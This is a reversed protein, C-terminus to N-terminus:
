GNALSVSMLLGGTERNSAQVKGGIAMLQRRALALGLGFSSGDSPRSSDVRFFPIFIKGLLVEPVGPGQDAIDIQYGQDNVNLSVTVTKGPPTFRMANRIINELAQGLARHNSKELPAYEPVMVQVTRDPFEFRADEVVVDLLDVLDLSEEKLSPQENELWALVLTDDVLKRIQRSERELRDLHADNHRDSKLADVAVDLRALPTRLEHSLDSILQRQGIILDSIRVAMTDFTATLQVLEDSREGVLDRVRVDFRGKAFEQTAVELKKLPSMIHRYLLISIATLVVLPLFMQLALTTFGQYRFMSPRMRDPLRILFHLEREIFEIEMIPNKLWPHLMWEVSRGIGYSKSFVAAHDDGAVSTLKSSLIAVWTNEKRRVEDLWQNLGQIDDALYYDEAKTAYGRLVQKHEQSIYSMRESTYVTLMNVLYFLVVTGIAVILCLKWLLARRM